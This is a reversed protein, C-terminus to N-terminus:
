AIVGGDFFSRLPIVVAPDTTPKGNVALAENLFQIQFVIPLKEDNTKGPDRFDARLNDIKNRMAAVVAANAHRGYDRAENTNCFDPVPSNM